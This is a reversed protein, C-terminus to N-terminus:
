VIPSDSHARSYRNAIGDRSPDALLRGVSLNINSNNCTVVGKATLMLVTAVIALGLVSRGVSDTALCCVSHTHPM